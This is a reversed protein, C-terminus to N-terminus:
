AERTLNFSDILKGCVFSVQAESGEVIVDMGLFQISATYRDQSFSEWQRKADKTLQNFLALNLMAQHVVIQM